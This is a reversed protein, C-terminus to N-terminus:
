ESLGLAKLLKSFGGSKKTESKTESLPSPAQPPPPTQTQIASSKVFRGKSGRFILSNQNRPNKISTSM